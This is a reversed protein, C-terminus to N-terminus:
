RKFDYLCKEINKITNEWSFYNEYLKKAGESLTKKLEEDTLVDKIALCLENINNADYLYVNKKHIFAEELDKKKTSIIPIGHFAAAVTSNNLSIGTGFPLVCVDSAFLIKSPEDSTWEYPGVWKISDALKLNSALNRMKNYYINENELPSGVIFLIIHPMEEKVKKFAEILVDIRKASYIHGFYVIIKSNKELKYENILEKKSYGKSISILPPPPILLLKKEIDPCAYRLKEGHEKSFYIIKDSKFLLSGFEYCCFKTSIARIFIKQIFQSIPKNRLLEAGLPSYFLVTFPINPYLWKSIVALQTVAPHYDYLWGIYLFLIAKPKIKKLFFWFKFLSFWSWKKIVPLIEIDNLNIFNDKKSTLITIKWGKQTLENSLRIAYDAEGAGIPPLVSSIVLLRKNM